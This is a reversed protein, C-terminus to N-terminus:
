DKKTKQDKGNMRDTVHKILNRLVHELGKIQGMQHACRMGTAAADGWVVQSGNGLETHLRTLDKAIEQRLEELARSEFPLSM